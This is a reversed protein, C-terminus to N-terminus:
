VESPPGPLPRAALAMATAHSAHRRDDRFIRAVAGLIPGYWARHADTRVTVASARSPSTASADRPRGEEPKEVLADGPIWGTRGTSLDVRVWPGDAPPAADLIRIRAGHRLVTISAADARPHERLPIDPTVLVVSWLRDVDAGPAIWGGRGSDLRVHVWEGDAETRRRTEVVITHRAATASPPVDKAPRSRLEVPTDGIRLEL